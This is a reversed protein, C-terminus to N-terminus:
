TRLGPVTGSVEGLTDTQMGIAQMATIIVNAPHLGNGLIHSGHVLGGVRGAVLMVMNETSHPSDDAAAEPDYGFGGELCFVLATSDLLSSGDIDPTDRLLAVLRAFHKVHWGVADAHAELSVGGHSLQHMDSAAGVLPGANLWTQDMTLRVAAVRTLDCAFAMRVYDTMLTARLEENSYAATASYELQDEDIIDFSEGIAPDDGPHPLLECAGATPPPMADLKAELAALEAFHREMRERDGAGMRPLLGQTRVRLADLVSRRRALEFAAAAAEAPDPPVFNGFLSEYTLRPSVFPDVGVIEGNEEYWSIRGHDGGTDGGGVYREPQVRLSLVRQQGRAAIADAIIQDHSPGRPPTISEPGGNVGSTMPGLTNGHFHPSRGGPPPVEGDADSWPVVLGSVVSVEDRVDHGTGGYPLAGPGLALLARALDYGPGVADPVVLQGGPARGASVGGFVFVYRRPPGSGGAHARSSGLLELMPLAMGAGALSRVLARRGLM